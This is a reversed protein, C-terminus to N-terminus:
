SAAGETVPVPASEGTATAAAEKAAARHWRTEEVEVSAEAEVTGVRVAKSAAPLAVVSAVRPVVVRSAGM